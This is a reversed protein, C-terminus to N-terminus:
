QYKTKFKTRADGTGGSNAALYGQWRDFLTGSTFGAATLFAMERDAQTAGTGSNAVLYANWSDKPNDKLSGAANTGIWKQIANPKVFTFIM